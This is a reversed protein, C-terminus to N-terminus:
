SFTISRILEIKTGELEGTISNTTGANFFLRYTGPSIGPTKTTSNPSYLFPKRCVKMRLVGIRAMPPLASEGMYTQTSFWAVYGFAKKTKQPTIAILFVTNERSLNEDTEYKFSIEQCGTKVLKVRSQYSINAFGPILVQDAQASSLPTIALISITLAIIKKM